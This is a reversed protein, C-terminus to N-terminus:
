TKARVYPASTAANFTGTAAIRMGSAAGSAGKAAYAVGMVADAMGSATGSVDNAADAVYIAADTLSNAAIAVGPREGAGNKVAVPVGPTVVSVCTAAYDGSRAAVPRVTATVLEVRAADLRDEVAIPPCKVAHAVVLAAFPMGKSGDPTGPAEGPTDNAAVPM